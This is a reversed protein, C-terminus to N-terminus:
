LWACWGLFIKGLPWTRPTHTLALAVAALLPPPLFAVVVVVVGVVGSM